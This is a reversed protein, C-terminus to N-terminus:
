LGDGRAMELVDADVSEAAVRKQFKGRKRRSLEFVEFLELLQAPKLIAIADSDALAFVAADGDVDGGVDGADFFEEASIGSSRQAGTTQNM